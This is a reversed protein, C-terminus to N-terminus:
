RALLLDYLLGIVLLLLSIFCCLYFLHLDFTHQLYLTNILSSIFLPVFIIVSSAISKWVKSKVLGRALWGLPFLLMFCFAAKGFRNRGLGVLLPLYYSTDFIISSVIKGNYYLKSEGRHFSAVVFQPKDTILIPHSILVVKSGNLGTLHTRVRFNLKSGSQGLTFNRHDPNNSLSVIRAAGTQQLEDPQFWIAITLENTKQLSDVLETASMQTAVVSNDRFIIGGQEKLNFLSLHYPDLVLKEKLLGYTKVPLDNFIYETLLGNSFEAPTERQFNIAYLKKVEQKKLKRNFISLKYIVGRWPRNLNAENGILLHFNHNWNSFTNLCVPILLILTAVVCYIIIVRSYFLRGKDYLKKLIEQTDFGKIPYALRAAVSAGVTNSFVDIGSTSRSLFMQCFEISLSVLFGLGTAIIVSHKVRIQVARLLSGIVLGLPFLMILNLIIDALSSGGIIAALYGRRFQIYQYFYYLSIRFPNLTLLYVFILYIVLTSILPRFYPAETYLSKLNIRIM